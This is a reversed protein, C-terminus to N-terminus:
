SRRRPTAGRNEAGRMAASLPSHLVGAGWCRARRVIAGRAIQRAIM